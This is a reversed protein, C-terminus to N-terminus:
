KQEVTTQALRAGLAYARELLDQRANVAGREDVGNALLDEGYHTHLVAFFARTTTVACDFNTRKDGATSIFAGQRPQGSPTAPLPARLVYRRAWLCQCRDIMAKAQATVNTFYIPSALILREVSILRDYLEQYDDQVICRGTEFCRECGRCPALKLRSLAVKSVSAGQSAAGELARDLLIETNGQTRPSGALGLVTIAL